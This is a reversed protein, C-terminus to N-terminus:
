DQLEVLRRYSEQRWKPSNRRAQEEDLKVQCIEALQLLLGIQVEFKLSPFDEVSVPEGSEPLDFGDEAPPADDRPM